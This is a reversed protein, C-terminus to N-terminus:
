ATKRRGRKKRKLLAHGKSADERVKSGLRSGLGPLRDAQAALEREVDTYINATLMPTSHRALKQAHQLPVGARALNTVYTVRLSHFDAIRGGTIRAIGAAVMDSQIMESGRASWRGRPFLNGTRGKLWKAFDRQISSPIPQEEDRRRKSHKAPLVLAIPQHNEFIVSDITLQSLEAIRFGTYAAVTYLMARDAGTLGSHHEGARTAHILKALEDQTFARRRRTRTSQDIMRLGAFPNRHQGGDISGLWRGFARISAAYKNRSRPSWDRLQSEVTLWNALSSGDARGPEADDLHLGRLVVLIQRHTREVHETSRGVAALHNRYREALRSLSEGRDRPDRGPVDLGMAARETQRLLDSALIETAKRDRFGPRRQRIGAADRYEIWYRSTRRTCRKGDASLKARIKRGGADTWHAYGDAIRAHKPIAQTVSPRYITAM